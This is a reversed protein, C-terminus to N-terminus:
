GREKLHVLLPPPPPPPEGGQEKLVGPRLQSTMMAADVRVPAFRPGSWVHSISGAVGAMQTFHAPHIAASTVDAVVPMPPFTSTVMTPPTMNRPSGVPSSSPSSNSVSDKSHSRVMDTSPYVPTAQKPYGNPHVTIPVEGQVPFPRLPVPYPESGSASVHSDPSCPRNVETFSSVKRAIGKRDHKRHNLPYSMKARVM